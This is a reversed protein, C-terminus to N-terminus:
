NASAGSARALRAAGRPGAPDPVISGSTLRGDFDQDGRQRQRCEHQEGCGVREKHCGLEREDRHVPRGDLRLGLGAVPSGTGDALRQPLEGELEGGGLEADGDGRQEGPVECFRGQGPQQDRQGAV